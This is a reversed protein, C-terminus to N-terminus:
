LLCAWFMKIVNSLTYVAAVAKLIVSGSHV